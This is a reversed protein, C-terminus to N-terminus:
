DVIKRENWHPYYYIIITDKEKISASCGTIFNTLSGVGPIPTLAWKIPFVVLSLSLGKRIYTGKIKRNDMKESKFHDILIVAPIGNMGKTMYTEVNATFIDGKNLITRNKYKVDQKVYFTLPMGDYIKDKKTSIPKSIRLKVPIKEFSEYNYDNNSLPKEIMDDQLTTEVFEDQIIEANCACNSFFIISFFILFAAFLKNM